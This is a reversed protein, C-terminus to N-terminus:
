GRNLSNSKRARKKPRWSPGNAQAQLLEMYTRFNGLDWRRGNIIVGELGAKQRLLNISEMFHQNPNKKLIDFIAPTLVYQGFSALCQGNELGPTECHEQAYDASPKEACNTISLKKDGLRYSKAAFCGYLHVYSSDVPRVAARSTTGDYGDLLQEVCGRDELSSCLHDGWALVFSEKGVLESCLLVADRIGTPRSQRVLTIMQGIAMLEGDYEQNRQAVKHLNDIPERRKFLRIMDAETEENVIMLIREMGANVLEECLWCVAPKIIAQEPDACVPFLWPQSCKTAPWMSPTFGALPVVATRVAKTAELTLQIPVMGLDKVIKAVEEQAAKSKCM